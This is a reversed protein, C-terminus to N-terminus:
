PNLENYKLSNSIILEIDNYISALSSYLGDARKKKITGLDM